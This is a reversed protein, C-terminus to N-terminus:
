RKIIEDQSFEVSTTVSHHNVKPKEPSFSEIKDNKKGGGLHLFKKLNEITKEM